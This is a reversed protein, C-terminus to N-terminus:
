ITPPGRLCRGTQWIEPTRTWVTPKPQTTYACVVLSHIGLESSPHQVHYSCIGCLLLCLELLALLAKCTSGPSTHMCHMCTHTACFYHKRRLAPTKTQLGSWAQSSGRCGKHMAQQCVTVHRANGFRMHWPLLSVDARLCRRTCADRTCAKLFCNDEQGQYCYARQTPPVCCM